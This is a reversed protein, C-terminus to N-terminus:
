LTVRTIKAVQMARREATLYVYPEGDVEVEVLHSGRPWVDTFTRSVGIYYSVQLDETTSALVTGLTGVVKEFGGGPTTFQDLYALAAANGLSRAVAPTTTNLNM